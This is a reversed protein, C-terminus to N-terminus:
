MLTNRGEDKTEKARESPKVRHYTVMDEDALQKIVVVAEEASERRM